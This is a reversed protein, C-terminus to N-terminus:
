PLLIEEGSIRACLGSLMGERVGVNKTVTLTLTNAASMCSFSYPTHPFCRTAIEMCDVKDELEKPLKVLGINSFTASLRKSLWNGAAKLWFYKVARPFFGYLKYLIRMAKTDALLYKEDITKTQNQIRRIIGATDQGESIIIPVGSTFSCLTKSPLFKRCNVPM